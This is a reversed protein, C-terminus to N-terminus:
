RGYDVEPKVVPLVIPVEVGARTILKIRLLLSGLREEFSVLEITRLQEEPPLGAAEAGRWQQAAIALTQMAKVRAQLVDRGFVDSLLQSGYSTDVLDTGSRTFLWLVLRLVLKQVGVAATPQEGFAFTIRHDGVRQIGQMINLDYTGWGFEVRQAVHAGLYAASPICEMDYDGGVRAVRAQPAGTGYAAGGTGTALAVSDAPLLVATIRRSVERAAGYAVRTEGAIRSVISGVVEGSSARERETAYVPIDSKRYPVTGPVITRTARVRRTSLDTAWRQEVHEVAASIDSATSGHAAGVTDVVARLIVARAQRDISQAVISNSM